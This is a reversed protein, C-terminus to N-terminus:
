FTEGRARGKRKVKREVGLAERGPCMEWVNGTARYVDCRSKERTLDGGASTTAGRGRLRKEFGAALVMPNQSCDPLGISEGRSRVLRLSPNSMAGTTSSTRRLISARLSDKQTRSKVSISVPHAPSSYSAKHDPSHEEDEDDESSVSSIDSLDFLSQRQKRHEKVNVNVLDSCPMAVTIRPIQESSAPITLRSTEEADHFTEDEEVFRPLSESAKTNRPSFLESKLPSEEPAMFYEEHEVLGGVDKPTLPNNTSDVAECMPGVDPKPPPNKRKQANRM